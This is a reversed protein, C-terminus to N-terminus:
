NAAEEAKLRKLEERVINLNTPDKKNALDNAAIDEMIMDDCGMCVENPIDGDDSLHGCVICTFVFENM